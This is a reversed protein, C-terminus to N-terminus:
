HLADPSDMTLYSLTEANWGIRAAALSPEAEAISACFLGGESRPRSGVHAEMKGVHDWMLLSKEGSWTVGQFCLSNHLKWLCWLVVSGIINYLEHKKNAIWKTAVLEFNIDKM